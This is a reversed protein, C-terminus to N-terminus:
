DAIVPPNGELVYVCRGHVDSATEREITNKPSHHVKFSRGDSPTQIDTPVPSETEVRVVPPSLRGDPEVIPDYPKAQVYVADFDRM